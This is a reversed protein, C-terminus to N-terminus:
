ISRYHNPSCRPQPIPSADDPPSWLFLDLATSSPSAQQSPEKTRNPKSLHPQPSVLLVPVRDIPNEQPLPGHQTQPIILLSFTIYLHTVQPPRNTIDGAEETLIRQYNAHQVDTM